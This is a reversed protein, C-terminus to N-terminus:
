HSSPPPATAPRGVVHGEEDICYISCKLKYKAITQTDIPNMQGVIDNISGLPIGAANVCKGDICTFNFIPLNHKDVSIVFLSGTTALEKNAKQVAPPLTTQALLKAVQNTDSQTADDKNTVTNVVIPASSLKAKGIVELSTRHLFLFWGLGVVLAILFLSFYSSKM